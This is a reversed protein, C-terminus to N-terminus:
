RAWIEKEVDGKIGDGGHDIDESREIFGNITVSVGELSWPNTDVIDLSLREIMGLHLRKSSWHDHRIYPLNSHDTETLHEPGHSDDGDDIHRQYKKTGEDMGITGLNGIGTENQVPGPDASTQRGMMPDIFFHDTSDKQFDNSETELRFREANGNRGPEIKLYVDNKPDDPRVGGGAPSKGIGDISDGTTVDVRISDVVRHSLCYRVGDGQPDLSYNGCADRVSVPSDDTWNETPTRVSRDVFGDYRDVIADATQQCGPTNPHGISAQICAANDSDHKTHCADKRWEGTDDTKNAPVGWSWPDPADFANVVGFGRSVFVMGPGDDQRAEESVAKRMWHAQLRAFNLANDTALEVVSGIGGIAGAKAKLFAKAKKRWTWDSAYPFYGVLFIIANPFQQRAKRLLTKQDQYCHQKVADWIGGRGVKGPNNLWGLAIDNTGGNLMLVDVDEAHPPETDVPGGFQSVPKTGDRPVDLSPKSTGKPPFQELQDVIRPWHWGIDRAITWKLQNVDSPDSRSYYDYWDAADHKIFGYVDGDDDLYKANRNLQIPASQRPKIKKGITFKCDDANFGNNEIDTKCNTKKTDLKSEWDSLSTIRYPYSVGITAGGRARFQAPPIPDGDPQYSDSGTLMKHVLNPTKDEYRTGTCWLASDGVCAITPSATAM